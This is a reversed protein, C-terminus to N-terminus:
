CWCLNCCPTEQAPGQEVYVFPEHLAKRAQPQASCHDEAASWFAFGHEDLLLRAFGALAVTGQVTALNCANWLATQAEYAKFALGADALRRASEKNPLRLVLALGGCPGEFLRSPERIGVTVACGQLGARPMPDQIDCISSWPFDFQEAQYGLSGM